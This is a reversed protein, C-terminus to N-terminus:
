ILENWKGFRIEPYKSFDFTNLSRYELVRSDFYNQDIGPYEIGDDEELLYLDESILHTMLEVSTNENSSFERLFKNLLKHKKNIELPTTIELFGAQPIPGYHSVELANPSIIKTEFNNLLDNIDKGFKRMERLKKLPVDQLLMLNLITRYASDKAAPSINVSRIPLKLDAAVKLYVKFLTATTTLSSHHCSLNTVTIGSDLFVQVQAKLEKELLDPVKEIAAINLNNIPRFIKDFCFAEHNNVVLAEGSSITLHCGIEARNGIANILDKVNKVSDKYNAICAVSNVKNNLVANKVGQNISPFVGFDDATVILNKM